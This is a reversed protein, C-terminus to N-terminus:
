FLKLLESVLAQESFEFQNSSCGLVLIWFNLFPLLLKMNPLRFEMCCVSILHLMIFSRIPFVIINSLVVFSCLFFYVKFDFSLFSSLSECIVSINQEIRGIWEISTTKNLLKITMSFSFFSLIEKKKMRPVNDNRQWQNSSENKKRRKGLDDREKMEKERKTEKWKKKEFYQLGDNKWTCIWFIKKQLFIIEIIESFFSIFPKLSSLLCSFLIVHHGHTSESITWFHFLVKIRLFFLVCIQYSKQCKRIGKEVM